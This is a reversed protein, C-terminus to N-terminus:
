GAGDRYARPREAVRAIWARLNPHEDDLPQHAELIRHFLEEDEPERGAAYKLFPYAVCDAAGFEGFLYERGTLLGEFLRLRAWMEEGLNAIRAQDPADSELEAEIENPPRKFVREFWEIFVEVAAREAADAPFLPPDPTRQELRRIIAVSDTIVEGADVVVPVLPQGSITEVPARNTYEILVSRAEIKKHGLALSVRECNTSWPARYLTVAPGGAM